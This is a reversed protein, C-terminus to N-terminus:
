EYWSRIVEFGGGTPVKAGRLVGNPSSRAERWEAQSRQRTNGGRSGGLNEAAPREAGRRFGCLPQRKEAAPREAGRRFGCLPQRKEAAPREAGRRFGCLPQRKEAAPREAGRRFGCLPQRKEAAPREARGRFGLLHASAHAVAHTGSGESTRYKRARTSSTPAAV